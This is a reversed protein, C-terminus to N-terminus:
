TQFLHYITAEQHVTQIFASPTNPAIMYSVFPNQMAQSIQTDFATRWVEGVLMLKVKLLRTKKKKIHFSCCTDAEFIFMMPLWSESPVTSTSYLQINCFGLILYFYMGLHVSSAM